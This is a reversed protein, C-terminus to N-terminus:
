ANIFYDIEMLKFYHTLVNQLIKSHKYLPKTFIVFCDIICKIFLASNIAVSFSHLM